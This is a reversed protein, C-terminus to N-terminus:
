EARIPVMVLSKVFTPRYADLPIRPDAYIDEIVAARRNLMAWGSVCTMIPFRRGKWLPSIADEEAYYCTDGERVVFTAGDAAVLVRAARRVVRMVAELDRALSLEQITTVLRVLTQHQQELLKLPPRPEDSSSPLSSTTMDKRQSLV